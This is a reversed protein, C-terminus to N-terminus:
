AADIPPIPVSMPVGGFRTKAPAARSSSPRSTPKTWYMAIPMGITATSRGSQQASSTKTRKRLRTTIPASARLTSASRRRASPGSPPPSASVTPMKASVATAQNTRSGFSRPATRM